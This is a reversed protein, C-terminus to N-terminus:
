KRFAEIPIQGSAQFNQFTRFSEEYNWNTQQALLITFQENLKTQLSLKQLFIQQEPTFQGQQVDNQPNPVVPQANSSIQSGSPVVSAGAATGLPPPPPAAAAAAASASSSLSSSSTQPQPKGEIWAQPNSHPRISLLDSAIIFGNSSPVIVFVRDFSKPALKNSNSNLHTSRRPGSPPKNADSEPIGVEEYDGHLSIIFGNIQQYRWSEISYNQPKTLLQHKTQPLNKFIKFIEEPGKGLRQRRIKESSVRAINRSIPIYFGFPNQNSDSDNPVSTDVSVSFQSESSYLSLLQSRNSDWLPLYNQIFQTSLNQIEEDEFFFQRKNFPLKYINQLKTEDRIIIGDLVILKPFNKLIEDKYLPDSCIPNNIMILERLHKLRNKWSELSKLKSVKNNSLSLNKLKPFTFALSTIGTFDELNNNSLDISEVILETENSALKMLAQFMKSQTSITNFAGHQQLEPDNSIQSLNLLKLNFDYRRKIFNKLLQITNSTEQSSKKSIRLSNGAFKVGSWKVLSDAENENKVYGIVANNEIISNLLVIRTKRSLFSVLDDKSAGEWGLIQVPILNQQMSRQALENVQDPRNNYNNRNNNNNHYNNYSNNGRGGRFSM